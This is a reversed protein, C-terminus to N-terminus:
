LPICILSAASAESSSLEANGIGSTGEPPADTVQVDREHGSMAALVKASLALGHPVKKILKEGYNGM